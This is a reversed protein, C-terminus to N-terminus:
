PEARRAVDCPSSTEQGVWFSPLYMSPRHRPAPALLAWTETALGGEAETGGRSQVGELSHGAQRTSNETMASTPMPCQPGCGGM